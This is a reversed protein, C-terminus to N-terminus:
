WRMCIAGSTLGGGFGALAVRQGRKLRGTRAVEDLLLPISAASTNGHTALNMSCSELPIGLRKAACTIIRENAQHCILHDLEEVSWGLHGCATSVRETLAEVAFRFVQSGDMHIHEDIFLAEDNGQVETTFSFPVDDLGAVVAGAGDGFLVCTTRDSFDVFRTLVESGVILAYSGKGGEKGGVERLLSRATILAFIFGSCAANLDFALIDCPLGLDRQLLCALTPCPREATLTACIVLGISERSV